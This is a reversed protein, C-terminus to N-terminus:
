DASENMNEASEVAADFDPDSSFQSHLENYIARAGPVGTLVGFRAMEVNKFQETTM